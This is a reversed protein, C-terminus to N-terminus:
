EDAQKKEEAPKEEKVEEKKRTTKRKKDKEKPKKHHKNYYMVGIIGGGVPVAIVLFPILTIVAQVIFKLVVVVANWGGKFSNSLTKGYSPPTPSVKPGHIYVKVTSYEVLSDINSLERNIILLETDIQSLRQSIQIIEHTSSSDILAILRNREAILTSKKAEADFYKNSVDESSVEYRTTEHDARIGDILENLRTTKVRIVIYNTTETLRESEVWDEEQDMLAKIETSSKALDESKISIDVTYIIKRNVNPLIISSQSGGGGANDSELDDPGYAGKACGTLTFVGLLVIIFLLIKRKM